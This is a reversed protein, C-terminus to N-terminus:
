KKKGSETVQRKSNNQVISAITADTKQKDVVIEINKIALVHTAFNRFMWISFM